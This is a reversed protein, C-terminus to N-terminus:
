GADKGARTLFIEGTMVNGQMLIGAGEMADGDVRFNFEISRYQDSITCAASTCACVSTCLHAKSCDVPIGGDPQLLMCSPPGTRVTRNADFPVCYWEDTKTDQLYPTQLSCWSKWLENTTTRFRLRPLEPRGELVTMPMGEYNVLNGDVNGAVILIGPTIGVNPDTPHTPAPGVGFKLSGCVVSDNAGTIILQVADSGSRFRANVMYGEWTGVIPLQRGAACQAPTPWVGVPGVVAPPEPTISGPPTPNNGIDLQEAACGILLIALAYPLTRKM